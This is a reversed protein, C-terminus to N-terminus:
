STTEEEVGPGYGTGDKPGDGDNGTGDGPGYKNGNEENAGSGYGPGYASGSQGTGDGPGYGTGDEPNVGANGSGDGPGYAGGSKGTGDGPGFGSFQGGTRDTSTGSGFRSGIGGSNGGRSGGSGNGGRALLMKAPGQPQAPSLLGCAGGMTDPAMAQRVNAMAPVAFLTLATAAVLTITLKGTMKMPAEKPQNHIGTHLDNRVEISCSNHWFSMNSIYKIFVITYTNYASPKRM